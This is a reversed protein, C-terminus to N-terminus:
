QYGESTQKALAFRESNLHRLMKFGLISNSIQLFNCDYETMAQDNERQKNEQDTQATVNNKCRTLM